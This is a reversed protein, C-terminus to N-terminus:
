RIQSASMSSSLRPPIAPVPGPPALRGSTILPRLYAATGRTKREDFGPPIIVEGGRMRDIDQIGTSARGVLEYGGAFAPDGVYANLVQM